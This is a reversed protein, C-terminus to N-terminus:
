LGLAIIYGDNGRLRPNLPSRQAITNDSIYPNEPDRGEGSHRGRVLAENEVPQNVGATEWSLTQTNVLSPIM